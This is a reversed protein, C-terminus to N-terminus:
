GHQEIREAAVVSERPLLAQHYEMILEQFGDAAALSIVFDTHEESLMPRLLDVLDARVAEVPTKYERGRKDYYMTVTRSRAREIGAGAGARAM